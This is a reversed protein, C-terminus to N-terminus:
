EKEPKSNVVVVSGSTSIRVEYRYGNCDVEFVMGFRKDSILCRLEVRQGNSMNWINNPVFPSKVSNRNGRIRVSKTKM